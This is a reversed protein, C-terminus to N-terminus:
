ATSVEPKEAKPRLSDAASSGWPATKGRRGRVRELRLSNGVVMLSSVLMAAAAMVPRLWGMAALGIAIVNYLFAWFLNEQIHRFTKKSLSLVWPVLTIDGALIHVDAAEKSLDTGIQHAIGVDALALAPADNVGDGVMAVKRGDRQLAEVYEVKQQPLREAAWHEVGLEAAVQQTSAGRDGSLLHVELKQARCQRVASLAGPRLHDQLCIAGRIAGDWGIYVRSELGAEPLELDAPMSMERKLLSAATGLQVTYVQEGVLVCGEIGEGPHNQFNQVALIEGDQAQFKEVIARALHHESNSELSAAIRLLTSRNLGADRSAVVDLVSLKGETLTGTKDFVVTDVKSMRELNEPRRILVGEKAARQLGVFTAMPTAIGLACPCAVVLVALASLFGQLPEHRVFSYYAIVGFAFLMVLGVFWASVRDVLTELPMRAGIAEACMREIQAQLTGEGVKMAEYIITGDFNVTGQLVTDGPGRSVPLSEGTLISEDLTTRGELIKGDVAIKEAPLARLLDGALVEDLPVLDEGQDASKARLRRAQAPTEKALTRMAQAMRARARAQLYKGLTVLIIVMSATDFYVDHGHRFTQKASYLYATVTGLTILTAMSLRGRPIERVALKLYPYGLGLVVPTALVLLIYQIQDRLHSPLNPYLYLVWAFSMIFGSLVAGLALLILFWSESSDGEQGGGALQYVFACGSCCFHKETGMQAVVPAGRLALGCHACIKVPLV